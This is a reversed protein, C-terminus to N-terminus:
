QKWLMGELELYRSLWDPAFGNRALLECYEEYALDRRGAATHLEAIRLMPADTRQDTRQNERLYFITSPDRKKNIEVIALNYWSGAAWITTTADLPNGTSDLSLAAFYGKRAQDPQGVDTHALALQFHTLPSRADAAVARKAADLAAVYEKRNRAETAARLEGDAVKTDVTAPLTATRAAEWEALSALFDQDDGVPGTRGYIHESPTVLLVRPLGQHGYLRAFQLVRKNQEAVAPPVKKDDKLAVDIRYCLYNAAVHRAVEPKALVKAEFARSGADWQPATILLFISKADGKAQAVCKDWSDFWRYGGGQAPTAVALAAALLFVGLSGISRQM